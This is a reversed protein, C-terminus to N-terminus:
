KKKVKKFVYGCVKANKRWIDIWNRVRDVIVDAGYEVCYELFATRLTEDPVDGIVEMILNMFSKKKSKSRFLKVLYEYIPEQCEVQVCLRNIGEVRKKRKDIIIIVKFVLKKFKIFM